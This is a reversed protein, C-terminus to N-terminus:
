DDKIYVSLQIVIHMALLFNTVQSWGDRSHL